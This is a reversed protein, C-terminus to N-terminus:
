KRDDRGARVRLSSRDENEDEVALLFAAALPKIAPSGHRVIEELLERNERVFKKTEELVM